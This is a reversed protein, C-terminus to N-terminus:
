RLSCGSVLGTVAEEFTNISVAHHTILQDFPGFPQELYGVEFFANNLAELRCDAVEGPPLQLEFEVKTQWPSVVEFSSTTAQIPSWNALGLAIVGATTALVAAIAFIRFRTANVPKAGYREALISDIKDAM